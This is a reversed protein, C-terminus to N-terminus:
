LEHMQLHPNAAKKMRTWDADVISDLKSKGLPCAAEFGHQCGWFCHRHIKPMPISDKKKACMDICTNSQSEVCLAESKQRCGFENAKNLTIVCAELCTNYMLPRPTLNLSPKCVRGCEQLLPNPSATFIYIDRM